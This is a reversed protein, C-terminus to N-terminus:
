RSAEQVSAWTHSKVPSLRLLGMFAFLRMALTRQASRTADHEACAQLSKWPKITCRVRIKVAESARQLRVNCGPPSRGDCPVWVSAQQCHWPRIALHM